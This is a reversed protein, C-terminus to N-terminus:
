RCRTSSDTGSRRRGARGSSIPRLLGAGAVFEDLPQLADQVVWSAVNHGGVWGLDPANGSAIAAFTKTENDPEQGAYVVKVGIDPQAAEFAAAMENVADFMRGTWVEYIEINTKRGAAPQRDPPPTPTPVADQRASVGRGGSLGLAAAAAGGAAGRLVSRRSLPQRLL